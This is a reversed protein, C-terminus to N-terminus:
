GSVATHLLVFYIVCWPIGDGLVLRNCGCCCRCSNNTINTIDTIDTSPYHKSTHEM